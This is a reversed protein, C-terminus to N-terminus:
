GRAEGSKRGRLQTPCHEALASCAGPRRSAPTRLPMALARIAMVVEPDPRSMDVRKSQGQQEGFGIADDSCQLMSASRVNLIDPCAATQCTMKVHLNAANRM